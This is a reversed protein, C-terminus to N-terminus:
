TYVHVQACLMQKTDHSDQAAATCLGPRPTFTLRTLTDEGQAELDNALVTPLGWLDHM